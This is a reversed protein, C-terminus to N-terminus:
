AGTTSLWRRRRITWCRALTNLAIMCFTFPHPWERATAPLTRMETRDLRYPAKADSRDPEDFIFPRSTIEQRKWPRNVAARGVSLVRSVYANEYGPAKLWGIFAQQRDPILGAVMAEGRFEHWPGFVIRAQVRSTIESGHGHWDNLLM